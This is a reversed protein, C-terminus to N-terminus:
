NLSSPFELKVNVRDSDDDILISVYKEPATEANPIFTAHKGLWLAFLRRNYVTGYLQKWATQLAELKGPRPAVGEVLLRGIFYQKGEQIDITLAVTHQAEDFQLKPIAGFRAYGLDQYANKLKDLGKGIATANFLDGDNLPFQARLVEVNTIQKNGTFNIASLRYIAGASVQVTLDLSKAPPAALIAALQQIEARSEAYGDDRLHQRIRESIEILPYSHSQIAQVIRTRETEPLDSSVITLTRVQVSDNPSPAPSQALAACGLSSLCLLAVAIRM